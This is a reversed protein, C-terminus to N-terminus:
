LAQRESALRAADTAEAVRFTEDGLAPGDKVATEVRWRGPPVHRKHSWMRWGDKRGGRMHFGITDTLQWDGDVEHYWRHEMNVEVDRPAFIATLVAVPEGPRHIVVPAALGLDTWLSQEDVMCTYEDDVRKFDRGVLTNKMVLPVPPVLGFAYLAVLGVAAVGAARVVRTGHGALRSLGWVAAMGAASSIYFWWPSVSGVLHPVLFNLLMVVSVCYIAWLLHTQSETWEAIENFVMAGFLGLVTLLTLWEGASKFYVVVLASFLSGLCFNQAFSLRRHWAEGLPRERLVLCAGVGVAYFSVVVLNIVKVVRGLTLVDFLFGALFFAVPFWPRLKEVWGRVGWRRDLRDVQRSIMHGIKSTEGDM